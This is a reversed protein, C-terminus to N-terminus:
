PKLWKAFFDIAVAESDPNVKHGTKEQIRIVFRDEAGAEKYAKMAADTCLKLGPLPTRDDSDGNITMLPRPAIMRLMAPGDFKGYIEPCVQDYFKAVFEANRPNEVGAEKGAANLANKVTDIRSMWLANDLAWKFSQVGICPIAVAIRLDVAAALYTETGGKSIGMMGIRKADIDDRTELYDILRMLDWVSDYYFPHAAYQALASNARNTKFANAMAEEYAASGKGTRSREGHFRGDIAIGVFGRQALRKVMPLEDMKTGGTGHLMVVAARKAPTTAAPRVLIGTIRENPEANFSFHYQVFGEDAPLQEVQPALSAARPKEILKLFDAKTDARCVALMSLVFSICVLTPIIRLM